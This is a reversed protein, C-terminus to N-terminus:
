SFRFRAFSAGEFERCFIMKQTFVNAYLKSNFIPFHKKSGKKSKPTMKSDSIILTALWAGPNKMQRRKPTTQHFFWGFRVPPQRQPIAFTVSLHNACFNTIKVVINCSNLEGKPRVVLSLDIKSTFIIYNIIITHSWKQM